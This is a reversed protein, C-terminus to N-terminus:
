LKALEKAVLDRFMQGAKAPTVSKDWPFALPDWKGNQKVKLIDQVEGHGLVTQPTVAIGYRKCLIAAVAALARWQVEKMPAPGYDKTAQKADQMCCASIGISGSNLGKTHAAYSGTTNVNDKISRSGKIVKADGDVLIHYHAYDIGTPKYRGASWHAIIRKMNAKPTWDKPIDVM